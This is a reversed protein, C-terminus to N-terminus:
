DCTEEGPRGACHREMAISFAEAQSCIHRVRPWEAAIRPLLPEYYRRRKRIENGQRQLHKGYTRLTLCYAPHEHSTRRHLCEYDQNQCLPDDPYLAAFTWNEMDQSPFVLIVQAPLLDPTTCGFWLAVVQQLQNVTATIPPCPQAVDPVLEALTEQLDNEIAIDVDVQILVADLPPGYRDIYQELRQVPNFGECWRRVGKWGTGMEDFTDSSKPQLPIYRHEGPCLQQVVTELVMRDTPGEVVTGINM